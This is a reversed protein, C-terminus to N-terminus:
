EHFTINMSYKNELLSLYAWQAPHKNKKGNIQLIANSKCM